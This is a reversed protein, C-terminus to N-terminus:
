RGEESARPRALIATALAEEATDALGDIYREQCDKTDLIRAWWGYEDCSLNAPWHREDCILWTHMSALDDGGCLARIQDRWPSPEPM